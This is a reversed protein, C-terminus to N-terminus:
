VAKRNGNEIDRRAQELLEPTNVDIWYSGHEWHTVRCGADLSANVVDVLGIPRILPRVLTRAVEIARPSFLGIGSCILFQKRPKETYRQVEPGDAILEGFSLQHHEYHSALTVDGGRELHLAALQSFDIETVLDGFCLLVPKNSFDYLGLAGANGAPLTEREIFIEVSAPLEHRISHVHREIAEGHTSVVITIREIGHEILRRLLRELIPMSGLRIMQKPSGASISRIRTGQGGAQVLAHIDHRARM